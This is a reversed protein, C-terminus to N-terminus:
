GGAGCKNRCSTIEIRCGIYHKCLGNDGRSFNKCYSKTKVEEALLPKKKKDRKDMIKFVRNLYENLLM